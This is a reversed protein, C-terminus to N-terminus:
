KVPATPATPGIPKSSDPAPTPAYSTSAGSNSPPYTRNTQYREVASEMRQGNFGINRQAAVRPWPDVMQTMEDTAIADGAVPSITERRSLYESCGGLVALVLCSAAFRLFNISPRM